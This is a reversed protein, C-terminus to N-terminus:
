RWSVSVMTIDSVTTNPIATASNNIKRQRLWGAVMACLPGYWKATASHGGNKRTPTTLAMVSDVRATTNVAPVM